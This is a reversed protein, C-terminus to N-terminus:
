RRVVAGDLVDGGCPAVEVGGEGVPVGRGLPAAWNAKKKRKKEKKKHKKEKMNRENKKNKTKRKIKRKTEEM